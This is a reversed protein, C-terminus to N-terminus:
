KKKTSGTLAKDRETVRNIFKLSASSCRQAEVRNQIAYQEVEAQTLEKEPWDSPIGTCRKEANARLAAFGPPDLETRVVGSSAGCGMLLFLLSTLM